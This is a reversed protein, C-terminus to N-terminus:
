HPIKKKILYNSIAMNVKLEGRKIQSLGGKIQSGCELPLRHLPCEEGKNIISLIIQFYKEEEKRKRGEFKAKL